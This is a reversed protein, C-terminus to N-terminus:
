RIMAETIMTKTSAAAFVDVPSGSTIQSALLDSGGFNLTVKVGHHAKTFRGALTTFTEKLSAAASVVVTGTIPPASTTTAAAGSSGAAAPTSGSSGCGALALSAAAVAILSLQRRM